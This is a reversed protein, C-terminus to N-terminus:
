LELVRVAPLLQLTYRLLGGLLLLLYTGHLLDFSSIGAGFLAGPM